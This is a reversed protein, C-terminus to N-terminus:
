SLFGRSPPSIALVVLQQSRYRLKYSVPASFGLTFNRLIKLEAPGSEPGRRISTQRLVDDGHLKLCTM